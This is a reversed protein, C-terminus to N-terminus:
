LPPHKSFATGRPSRAIRLHSKVVDKQLLDELLPVAWPGSISLVLHSTSLTGPPGPVCALSCGVADEDRSSMSAAGDIELSRFSLRQLSGKMCIHSILNLNLYCASTDEALDKSLPSQLCARM